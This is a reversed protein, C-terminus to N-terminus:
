AVLRFLFRLPPRRCGNWSEDWSICPGGRGAHVRVDIRFSRHDHYPTHLPNWLSRVCVGGLLAVVPTSFLMRIPRTCSELLIRGVDQSDNEKDYKCRLDENGTEKRLRRVKNRLIRPEYTERFFAIFALECVGGAIAGLWFAWRWGERQTLYGGIVPGAVPGILPPLGVMALPLGREGQVFMDGVISPNLAISADGMGSFLWFALLMPLNRSVACAISFIIFVVNTANYIPTRGYIESAPATLLPGVAEGLEWVSVLITEYSTNTSKFEKLIQPIAPICM